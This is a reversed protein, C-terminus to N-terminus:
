NAAVWEFIVENTGNWDGAFQLYNNSSDLAYYLHYFDTALDHGQNDTGGAYGYMTALDNGLSSGYQTLPSYNQNPCPYTTSTCKREVIYEATGGKFALSGGPYTLNGTSQGTTLDDIFFTGYTANGNQNGSADSPWCGVYMDDNAHVVISHQQIDLNPYYEVWANYSPGSDMEIGVQVLADGATGGLGTWMSAKAPSSGIIYPVNFQAITEIYETGSQLAAGAWTQNHKIDYSDNRSDLMTIPQAPPIEAEASVVRLWTDYMGPAVNPDPRPPYNRQILEEQTYSTPDGSLAPRIKSASKISPPVQFTATAQLDVPHSDMGGAGNPCDVSLKAGWAAPARAFRAIGDDDAFIQGTPASQGDPHIQCVAKPSTVVFGVREQDAKPTAAPVFSPTSIPHGDPAGPAGPESSCSSVSAFLFVVPLRASRKM